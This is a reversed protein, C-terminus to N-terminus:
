LLYEFSILKGTVLTFPMYNLHNQNEEKGHVRKDRPHAPM